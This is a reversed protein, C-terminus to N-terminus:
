RMLRSMLGKRKEKERIQKKTRTPSAPAPGPPEVPGDDNAAASAPAAARAGAGAGAGAGARGKKKVKAKGIAVEAGGERPTIQRYDQREADIESQMVKDAFGTIDGASRPTAPDSSDVYEGKPPNPLPPNRNPDSPSLACFTCNSERDEPEDEEEGRAHRRDRAGEHGDRPCVALLRVQLRAGRRACLGFLAANLPLHHCRLPNRSM